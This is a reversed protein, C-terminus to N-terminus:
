YFFCLISCVQNQFLNGVTECNKSELVEITGDNSEIFCNKEEEDIAGVWSSTEVDRQQRKSPGFRYTTM